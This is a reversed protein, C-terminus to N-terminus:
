EGIELLFENEFKEIEDKSYNIFKFEDTYLEQNLVFAIRQYVVLKQKKNLKHKENSNKNIVQAIGVYWCEDRFDAAVVKVECTMDKYFIDSTGQTSVSYSKNM